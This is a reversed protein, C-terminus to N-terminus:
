KGYITGTMILNAIGIYDSVDIDGNSDVDAAKEIFGEPINGMIHNAVGIYDSVDVKGDGNIDGPVFSSITLTSRVHAIEYYKSIDTETLKINKLDVTYDGDAMREDIKITVSAIEGDSGTFTEDYQSGCLFRISGDAQESITLTHEDGEPLRGNCLSGQIRGKSNKVAEVGSPLYLDFQFGRIATTNKMKLYLTLQQGAVGETDSIYIANDVKSIDTEDGDAVFTGTITVDHAPMRDPVNKWGSFTYGSKQPAEIPTIAEGYAISDTHYTIGDVTYTLLYKNIVFSGYLTLDYAPMREPVASEAYRRAGLLGSIDGIIGENPGGSDSGDQLSWGSFSYGEKIPSSLDIISNYEVSDKKYVSGDIIYTLLYKPIPNRKVKVTCKSSLNSGDNTNGTIICTGESVGTINGDSDITAVKTNSSKYTVSQDTTNSPTFVPTLTFTEDPEIQLEAPELEFDSAIVPIVTLRCTASVGNYATCTIDTDGVRLCRVTGAKDVLAINTKSSTWTLESTAGTELIQPTFTYSDGVQLNLSTPMNIKTVDVVNINYIATISGVYYVGSSKYSYPLSVNIAYSGRKLAVIEYTFTNGTNKTTNITLGGSGGSVTYTMSSVYSRPIETDAAPDIIISEGTMLTTTSTFSSWALLKCHFSIIM